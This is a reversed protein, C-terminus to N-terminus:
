KMISGGKKDFKIFEFNKIFYNIIAIIINYFIIEKDVKAFSKIIINKNIKVLM